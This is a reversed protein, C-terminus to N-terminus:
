IDLIGSYEEKYADLIEEAIQEPKLAGEPLTFPVKEWFLTDVASPRVITIKKKREEKILAKVFAELGSKAAVYATLKPFILSESIAGIYFLHANRALVPLSYHTAIFAGTLNANLIRHWTPISMKVVKEAIIDGVSYIFLELSEFEEQITNLVQEVEIPKSIDAKFTYPTLDIVKEPNRSIGVVNWGEELLKTVIASGIGGSAGWVIANKGNEVSEGM